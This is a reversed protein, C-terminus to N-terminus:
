LAASIKLMLAKFELTLLTNHQDQQMMLPWKHPRDMLVQRPRLCDIARPVHRALLTPALAGVVDRTM